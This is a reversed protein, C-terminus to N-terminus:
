LGVVPFMAILASMYSFVGVVFAVVCVLVLGGVIFNKM